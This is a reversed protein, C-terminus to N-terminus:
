FPGRGVLTLPLAAIANVTRATTTANCDRLRCRVAGNEIDDAQVQYWSSAQTASSTSSGFSWGATGGVSTPSHDGGFRHVYAGAVVTHMDFYGAAASSNSSFDPDICIWDGAVVGPIVVDLNRAAASGTTDLDHWANASVGLSLAGATRTVRVPVLATQLATVAATSARPPAITPM